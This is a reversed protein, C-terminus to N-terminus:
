DEWSHTLAEIARRSSSFFTVILVLRTLPAEGVRLWLEEERSCLRSYVLRDFLTGRFATRVTAPGKAVIRTGSSV